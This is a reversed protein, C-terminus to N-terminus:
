RAGSAVSLMFEVIPRAIVPMFRNTYHRLDSELAFPTGAQQVVYRPEFVPLGLEAAADLTERYFEAPWSLARGDPMYAWTFAVVGLPCNLAGALRRLGIRPDTKAGRARSLVATLLEQRPFGDPIMRLLEQASTRRADEDMAVLGKEFWRSTLHKAEPAAERLSILLQLVPRRNIYVGDLIIEHSTNPEAIAADARELPDNAPTPATDSKMNCLFYYPEPIRADGRYCDIAQLMENLTHTAFRPGAMTYGTPVDNWDLDAWRERYRNRLLPARLNCGGFLL